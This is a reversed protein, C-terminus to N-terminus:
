VNSKLKPKSIVNINNQMKLPSDNLMDAAISRNDASSQLEQWTVIDSRDSKMYRLDHSQGTNQSKLKHNSPRLSMSDSINKRHNNVLRTAKGFDKMKRYLEMKNEYEPSGVHPSGLGGM